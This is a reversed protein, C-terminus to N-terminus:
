CIGVECRRVQIRDIELEIATGQEQTVGKSLKRRELNRQQHVLDITSQVLRRNQQTDDLIYSQGCAADLLHIELSGQSNLLFYLGIIVDKQKWESPPPQGGPTEWSVRRFVVDNNM